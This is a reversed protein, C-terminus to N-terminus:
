SVVNVIDEFYENIKFNMFNFEVYNSSMLRFCPINLKECNM